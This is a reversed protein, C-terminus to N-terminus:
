HRQKPPTVNPDTLTIVTTLKTGAYSGLSWNAIGAGNLTDATYSGGTVTTSTAHHVPLRVGDRWVGRVSGNFQIRFRAIGGADTTASNERHISRAPGFVVLPILPIHKWEEYRVEAGSVPQGSSNLVTVDIPTWTSFHPAIQIAVLPILLVVFCALILRPCGSPEPQPQSSPVRPKTLM